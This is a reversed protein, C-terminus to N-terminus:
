NVRRARQAWPGPELVLGVVDEGNREVGVRYRRPSEVELEDDGVPTLKVPRGVPFYLNESDPGIAVIGDNDREIRLSASPSFSYEGVVSDIQESTWEIAEATRMEPLEPVSALVADWAVESALTGLWSSRIGNVAVQDTTVAVLVDGDGMTSFPQIARAMSTHVQRALRDLERYPMKANTVVLTLTTNATTGSDLSSKDIPSGHKIMDGMVEHMQGCDNAGDPGCRVISGDRDVVVGAANVVTFVAIKLDGVQRFAGGQGSHQPNGLPWGQMVFRGAGQAGLPFEGPRATQLAARGLNDDPTISNLRREGLDFVIAGTVDAIRKWQGAEIWIEKLANAVGTAASLGYSSGGSFCIANTFGRDHPLRITESNVVGPAGGRVDIAAKVPEPFYFVTTGTPGENYEAIGVLIEPFDFQLVPGDISTDPLLDQGAVANM